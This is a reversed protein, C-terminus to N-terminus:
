IYLYQICNEPVTLFSKNDYFSTQKEFSIHEKYHIKEVNVIIDVIGM